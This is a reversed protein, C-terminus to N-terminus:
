LRAAIAALLDGVLEGVPRLGDFVLDASGRAARDAALYVDRGGSLFARLQEEIEAILGADGMEPRLGVTRLLRRALAIDQPVELHVALDIMPAMERRSRGFPEELIVFDAPGILSQDHPLRIPERRRLRNLDAAFQPTAVANPEGGGELWAAIAGIDNGLILYHDFHLRAANDLHAAMREILSTKGAGSTGSVAVVFVPSDTGRPLTPLRNEM